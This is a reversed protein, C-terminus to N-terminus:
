VSSMGQSGGNQVNIILFLLQELQFSKKRKAIYFKLILSKRKLIINLMEGHFKSVNRVRPRHRSILFGWSAIKLRSSNLICM